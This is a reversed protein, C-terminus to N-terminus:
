VYNKRHRIHVHHQLSYFAFFLTLRFFTGLFLHPDDTGESLIFLFFHLGGKM